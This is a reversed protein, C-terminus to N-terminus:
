PQPSEFFKCYADYAVVALELYYGDESDFLSALKNEVGM